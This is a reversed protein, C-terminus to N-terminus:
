RSSRDAFNHHGLRRRDGGGRPAPAKNKWLEAHKIHSSLSGDPHYVRYDAEAECKGMPNPSCGVLKILSVVREGRRAIQVAGKVDKDTLMLAAAFKDKLEERVEAQLLLPTGGLFLFVLLRLFM